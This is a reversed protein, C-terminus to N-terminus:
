KGFINIQEFVVRTSFEWATPALSDVGSPVQKEHIFYEITRKLALKLNEAGTISQQYVIIRLWKLDFPVDDINQTILIVNQKKSHAIGLEYFVNPNRGTLDAIILGARLISLIVDEMIQNTSYIDDSRICRIRFAELEPKIVKRYIEDYREAFPMIVFCLNQDQEVDYRNITDFPFSM